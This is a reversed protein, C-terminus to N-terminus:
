KMHTPLSYKQNSAEKSCGADKLLVHHITSCSPEAGRELLLFAEPNREALSCQPESAVLGPLCLVGHGGAWPGSALPSSSTHAHCMSFFVLIKEWVEDEDWHHHSGIVSPCLSLLESSSKAGAISSLGLPDSTAIKPKRSHERGADQM